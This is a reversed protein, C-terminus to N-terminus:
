FSIPETYCYLLETALLYRFAADAYDKLTSLKTQIFQKSGQRVYTNGADIDDKYVEVVGDEALTKGLMKEPLGPKVLQLKARFDEIDRICQSIQDSRITTLVFLQFEEKSIHGVAELILTVAVLPKIDM